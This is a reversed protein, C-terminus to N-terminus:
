PFHAMFYLLVTNTMANVIPNVKDPHAGWCMCGDGVAGFVISGVLVVVTEDTASAGAEAVKERVTPDELVGVTEYMAVGVGAGVDVEGGGVWAGGGNRSASDPGCDTPFRM